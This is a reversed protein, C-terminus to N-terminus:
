MIWCDLIRVHVQFLSSPMFPVHSVASRLVCTIDLTHAPERRFEFREHGDIAINEDYMRKYIEDVEAEIENSYTVVSFGPDQDSGPALSMLRPYM